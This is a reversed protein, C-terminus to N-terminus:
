CFPINTDEETCISGSPQLFLTLAGYPAIHFVATQCSWLNNPGSVGNCNACYVNKYVDGIGIYPSTYVAYTFTHCASVINSDNFTPPCSSVMRPECFRLHPKLHDPVTVSHVCKYETGNLTSTLEKTERNFKAQRLVKKLNERGEVKAYTYRDHCKYDLKFAELDTTNPLGNCLACYVNLYTIRSSKEQVPKLIKLDRYDHDLSINECKKRVEEDAFTAPCKNVVYFQSLFCRTTM